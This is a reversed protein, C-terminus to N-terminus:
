CGDAKGPAKFGKLKVLVRKMNPLLEWLQLEPPVVTVTLDGSKPDVAINHGDIVTAYPVVFDYVESSLEVDDTIHELTDDDPVDPVDPLPVLEVPNGSEIGELTYNCQIYRRRLPFVPFSTTTAPRRVVETRNM